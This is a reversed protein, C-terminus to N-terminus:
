QNRMMNLMKQSFSAEKSQPAVTCLISFQQRAEDYMGQEFFIMALNFRAQRHNPDYNLAQGLLQLAEGRRGSSGYITALNNMADPYIPQIQLAREFHPGAKEFNGAKKLADGLNNHPRAKDPSKAVIDTYLAVESEYISNRAVSVGCLLTIFTLTTVVRQMLM